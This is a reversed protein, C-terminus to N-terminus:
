KGIQGQVSQAINIMEQQPLDGTSLRFEVGDHVWRLMKNNEGTLVGLTFQLDVITGPLTTVTKASPRSEVISYNYEGSYSLLVAQEEGLMMEKIATQQVGEPVYSPQLIGFHQSSTEQVTGEGNVNEGELPAMAALSQINWSTLNRQMDFSDKEFSKDFKFTDFDVVVMVNANADTIEVHQPAYNKQNLWVKQRVLSSNEYNAKVDFVYANSDKDETFQRETDKLIGQVLTQYLYVQGQHDPWDSQFRFSKNLHPTLVFVGDDNKLVIQTIDKKVNTLAIRYYHPKQYWVEVQYELPQQGTHLLMSGVAEYSELKGAVQELDKVVGEVDKKGCGALVLSVCLVIAIMWTIRRM